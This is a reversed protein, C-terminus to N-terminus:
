RLMSVCGDSGVAGGGDRFGFSSFLGDRDNVGLAICYHEQAGSCLDSFIVCCITMHGSLDSMVHCRALLLHLSLVRVKDSCHM